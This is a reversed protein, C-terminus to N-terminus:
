ALVPESGNLVPARPKRELRLSPSVQATKTQSQAHSRESFLAFPGWPSCNETLKTLFATGM